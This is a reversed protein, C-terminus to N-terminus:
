SVQGFHSNKQYLLRRNTSFVQKDSQKLFRQQKGYMMDWDMIHFWTHKEQNNQVM